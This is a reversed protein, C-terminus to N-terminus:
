AGEPLEWQTNGTAEHVYYTDGTSTDLTAVWGAPLGGKFPSRGHYLIRPYVYPVM